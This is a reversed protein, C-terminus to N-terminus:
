YFNLEQGKTFRLSLEPNIDKKENISYTGFMLFHVRVTVDNFCILLHKGWSKIATIKKNVLKEKDIKSYGIAALVKRGEFQEIKEKAIVISPGEPMIVKVM